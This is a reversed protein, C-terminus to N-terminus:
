GLEVLDMQREPHNQDNAVTHLGEPAAFVQRARSPRSEGARHLDGALEERRVVERQDPQPREDRGAEPPQEVPGPPTYQDARRRLVSFHDGHEADVLRAEEGGDEDQAREQRPEAPPERPRARRRGLTQTSTSIRAKASNAALRWRRM